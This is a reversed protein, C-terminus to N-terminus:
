KCLRAVQTIEIIERKTESKLSQVAPKFFKILYRNIFLHFHLINVSNDIPFYGDRFHQQVYVFTILM